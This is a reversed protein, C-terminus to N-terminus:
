DGGRKGSAERLSGSAERLSGYAEGPSEPLKGGIQGLAPPPSLPPPQPKKVSAMREANPAFVTLSPAKSCWQPEVFRYGFHTARTFPLMSWFRRLGEQKSELWVWIIGLHDREMEADVTM